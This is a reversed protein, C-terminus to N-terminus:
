GLEIAAAATIVKVLSAAPYDARLALYPDSDGGRRYGVLAVVRGTSPEMAAFAGYPPDFRAFLNFVAEQLDKNIALTVVSGDPLTKDTKGSKLLDCLMQPPLGHESRPTKEESLLESKAVSWGFLLVIVVVVAYRFIKDRLIRSV